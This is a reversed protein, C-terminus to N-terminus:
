TGNFHEVLGDTQAHFLTTRIGKIKLMGYIEALLKFTFNSGQDTLIDEPLGVRSIQEVLKEAIGEADISKLTFAEPYRTAYDCVVLIYKNGRRSKELPGVIDMAIRSFPIRIIPLNMMKKTHIEERDKEPM